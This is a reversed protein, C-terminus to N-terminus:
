KKGQFEDFSYQFVAKTSLSVTVLAKEKDMFFSDVLEM